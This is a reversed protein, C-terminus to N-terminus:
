APRGRIERAGTGLLRLLEDVRQELGALGRDLAPLHADDLVDAVPDEEDAAVRGVDGPRAEACEVLDGRREREWGTGADRM